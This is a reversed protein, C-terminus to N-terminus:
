SANRFALETACEVLQTIIGLAKQRILLLAKRWAVVMSHDM